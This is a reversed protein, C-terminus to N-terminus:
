KQKRRLDRYKGPTIFFYKKFKARFQEIKETGFMRSIDEITLDFRTEILRRARLLKEFEIFDFLLNQTDKKFRTSLYSTNINFIGALHYCTLESLEKLTSNMIHKVINESIKQHKM